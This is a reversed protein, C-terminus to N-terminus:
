GTCCASQAVSVSISNLSNCNMVKEKVLGAGNKAPEAFAAFAFKPPRPYRREVVFTNHIVSPEQM